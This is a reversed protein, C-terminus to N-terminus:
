PQKKPNPPDYRGLPGVYLVKAPYEGAGAWQGLEVRVWDEQKEENFFARVHIAGAWSATSSHIGTKKGGQRTAEGRSGQITAYFHSM